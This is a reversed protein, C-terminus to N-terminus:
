RIISADCKIVRLSGSSFVPETQPLAFHTRDSVLERIVTNYPLFFFEGANVYDDTFDDTDFVLYDINYQHCFEVIKAPTEAYYADFAEVIPANKDPFLSRFLVSRRSFLPISTLEDPSGALVVDKPLTAVYAYLDRESVNPNITDFGVLRSYAGAPFVSILCLIVAFSVRPINLPTNTLERELVRAGLGLLFVVLLGTVVLGIWGLVVATESGSVIIAGIVILLVAGLLALAIKNERIWQPLADIFQRLNLGVFYFPILFLVIRTYRSPLYLAASSFIFIAGLSLFYMLFGATLLKWFTRPLRNRKQKDVVLYIMLSLVTLVLFNMADADVDFLGAKGLWPFRLYMPTASGAQYLPNESFPVDKVLTSAGSSNFVNFNVGFAWVAVAGALLLGVGFPIAKKLRLDLAIKGGYFDIMSFAYTLVMLPVNPMYILTAVPILAAAVKYKDETLYYMFVILLPLAFARQLGSAVSMSDPTALNFFVFLLSVGLAAKDNETQKKALKYLYGATLPMLIFVLLKGFLIPEVLFSAIFFIFAHGLSVPYLIVQKGFINVNILSEDYQLRDDPFLAPDQFKAMWYHNQADIPVRYYDALHPWLIILSWVISIVIASILWPNHKELLKKVRKNNM